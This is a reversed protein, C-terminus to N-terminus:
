PEQRLMQNETSLISNVKGQRGGDFRKSVEWIKDWGQEIIDDSDHKAKRNRVEEFALEV